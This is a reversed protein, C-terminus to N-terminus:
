VENGWADWGEVRERAFLEIKSQSPFMEEIRRRAEAPKESHRGRPAEILQRVNRAGRPKPIRGRRFVLCLETSSMTYSGPNLRGKEWVFAVTAYAFGWSAGVLVADALLPGTTWMFLLADDAAISEVPLAAIEKVSMTPYHDRAAGTLQDGSGRHQSNQYSWAPDALIISYTGGPFDMTM